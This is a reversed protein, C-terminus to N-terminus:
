RRACQMIRFDTSKWEDTVFGNDLFRKVADKFSPAYIDWRQGKSKRIESVIDCCNGSHVRFPEYEELSGTQILTFGRIPSM